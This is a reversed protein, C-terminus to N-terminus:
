CLGLAARHKQFLSSGLPKTFIDATNDATSIDVLEVTGKESERRVLHYKTSIHKSRQNVLHDKSLARAATNDGFLSITMGPPFLGLSILTDRIWLAEATTHYASIYEAMTSSSSITGQLKSSWSLLSNFWYFCYGSTSRAQDKDGAWDSDYLGFFPVKGQVSCLSASEVLGSSFCAGGLCLRLDITGVLYKLIRKLLSWHARGPNHMYRCGVGVAFLIDPRSNIALSMLAGCAERYPVKIMELQEESGPLPCDASSVSLTEMPIKVPRADTMSFKELLNKIYAKQSIFLLNKSLDREITLGLVHKIEGDDTMTFKESLAKGVDTLIRACDSSITFDDVHLSILSLIDNDWRFYLCPDGASPSFGLSRIFPDVTKHWVRPAQKLGYLNRLLRFVWDPHDPDIYGEAQKMYLVEEPVGELFACTVDMQKTKM